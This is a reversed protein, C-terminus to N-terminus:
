KQIEVIQPMKVHHKRISRLGYSVNTRTGFFPQVCSVQIIHSRARSPAYVYRFSVHLCSKHMICKQMMTYIVNLKMAQQRDCNFQLWYIPPVVIAFHNSQPSRIMFEICIRLYTQRSVAHCRSRLLQLEGIKATSINMATDDCLMPFQQELPHLLLFTTTRTRLKIEVRFGYGISLYPWKHM